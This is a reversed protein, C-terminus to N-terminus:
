NYTSPLQKRSRVIAPSPSFPIHDPVTIKENKDESSIHQYKYMVNELLALEGFTHTNNTSVALIEAYINPIKEHIRQILKNKSFLCPQLSLNSEINTQLDEISHYDELVSADIHSIAIITEYLIFEYISFSAQNAKM